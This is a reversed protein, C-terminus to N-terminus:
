VTTRDCIIKITKLCTGEIGVKNLAKIMSPHQTKNFAKEEDISIIMHNKKNM